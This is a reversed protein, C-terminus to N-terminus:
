YYILLSSALGSMVSKCEYLFIGCVCALARSRVTAKRVKTPEHQVSTLLMIYTTKSELLCWISVRRLLKDTNIPSLPSGPQTHRMHQLQSLIYRM